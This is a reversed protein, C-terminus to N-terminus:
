PGMYCPKRHMRTTVSDVVITGSNQNSCVTYQSNLQELVSSTTTIYHAAYWGLRVPICYVTSAQCHGAACQIMDAVCQMTVCEFDM